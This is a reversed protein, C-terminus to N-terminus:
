VSDRRVYVSMPTTNWVGVRIHILWVTISAAVETVVTVITVVTVVTVITVIVVTWMDVCASASRALPVLPYDCVFVAVIVVVVMYM